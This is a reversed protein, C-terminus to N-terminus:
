DDSKAPSASKERDNEADKNADKEPSREPSVSKAPSRSRRTCLTAQSAKRERHPWSLVRDLNVLHALSVKAMSLVMLAASQMAILDNSNSAAVANYSICNEHFLSCMLM